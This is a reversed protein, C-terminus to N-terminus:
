SAESLKAVAQNYERDLAEAHHPAIIRLQDLVRVPLVLQEGTQPDIIPVEQPEGDETPIMQTMPKPREVLDNYFTILDGGTLQEDSWFAGDDDLLADLTGLTRLLTIEVARERIRNIMEPSTTFLM